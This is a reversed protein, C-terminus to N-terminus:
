AYFIPKKLAFDDVPGQSPDNKLPKPPWFRARHGKYGEEAVEKFEEGIGGQDRGQDRQNLLNEASKM